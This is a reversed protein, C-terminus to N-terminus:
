FVREAFRVFTTPPRGLLGQLPQSSGIMGHREYYHFMALLTEVQYASMGSRSAREAWPTRNEVEVRVDRRLVLGLCSAIETQNLVDSACLEYTASAHQPTDPASLIDAAAAAVDELDVMSVRTTAAYPVTFAGSTQLSERQGLINQMYPAPQLITYDLGSEALAAEVSLKAWHHPMERIGPQLVSHFLFRRVRAERALAIISRGIAVEEPHVNPCIHYVSHAERFAPVLGQPDTLDAVLPEDVGAKELIRAQASDRVLARIRLGSSNERNVSSRSHLKRILALGTKGAAGTILVVRPSLAASM